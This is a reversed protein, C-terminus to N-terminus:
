FNGDQVQLCKLGMSRWLEVVQNRDDLVFDVYYKDRVGVDFLMKKVISDKRNDKAKRMLLEWEGDMIQIYKKIWEITKERCSDERGSLFIVKGKYSLYTEVIDIIAEDPSDEDVRDGDYPSRGNMHAITGDIDCIIVHQLDPNQILKPANKVKEEKIYTNYMNWIVKSGVSNPRKLDRAICEEPSVIFEKVLVEANFQKAIRRIKEEHMPHFNTDDVIVHKGESLALTIISDRQLLVFKENGKSHKGGDIMARLDDKNVRKISGNSGAVKEKAWTSKGSAPLGKLLWIKKMPIEGDM